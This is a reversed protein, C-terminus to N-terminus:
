KTKDNNNVTPSIPASNAAAALAYFQVIKQTADIQVKYAPFWIAAIQLGGIAIISYRLHPNSLLTGLNNGINNM